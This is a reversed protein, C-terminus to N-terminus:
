RPILNGYLYPQDYRRLNVALSERFFEFFGKRRDEPVLLEPLREFM